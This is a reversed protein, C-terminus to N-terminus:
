AHSTKTDTTHCSPQIINPPLVVLVAGAAVVTVTAVVNVDCTAVDGFVVFAVSACVVVSDTEVIRLVFAVVAADESFTVMLM